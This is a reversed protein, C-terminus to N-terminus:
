ATKAIKRWVPQCLQWYFQMAKSVVVPLFFVMVLAAPVRWLGEAVNFLAAGLLCYAAAVALLQLTVKAQDFLTTKM